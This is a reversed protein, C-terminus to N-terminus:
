IIPHSSVKSMPLTPPQFLRMFLNYIFYIFSLYIFLYTVKLIEIEDSMAISQHTSDNLKNKETHHSKIRPFTIFYQSNSHTFVRIHMVTHSYSQTLIKTFRLSYIHM